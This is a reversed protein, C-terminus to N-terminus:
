EVEWSTCGDMPRGRFRQNQWPIGPDDQPRPTKVASKFRDGSLEIGVPFVHWRLIERKGWLVTRRYLWQLMFFCFRTLLAMRNIRIVTAAAQISKSSQTHSLRTAKMCTTPRNFIILRKSVKRPLCFWYRRSVNNIKSSTWPYSPITINLLVCVVLM